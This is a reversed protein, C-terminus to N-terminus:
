EIGVGSIMRFNSSTSQTRLGTEGLSHIGLSFSASRPPVVSTGNLDVNFFPQQFHSIAPPNPNNPVILVTDVDQSCSSLFLVAFVSSLAALFHISHYSTKSTAMVSMLTSNTKLTM